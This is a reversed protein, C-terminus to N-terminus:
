NTIKFISYVKKLAEHAADVDQETNYLYFSIRNTSHAGLKEMLPQACHHGARIAIGDEDLISAVDHPHVGPINFSLIGAADEPGYLIIGPFQALKARAYATLERDHKAIFDFGVNELYTLAADFAVVDAINPTGAEFKWPLENFRASFQDVDLIMDGGFLFPPMAELIKRKGYLIGVGTPGLMKHASFALFDIDPKQVDIGLHALGQAGDVLIKAGVMHARATLITLPITSGLANSMQTVAVLKTKETIIKELDNLDLNGDPTVPIVKLNAKKRQCLQQWPVLNSHHELATVVVDDGSYINQEGWTYAVLNIAETTNRTFIIEESHNANIFTKVHERTKEYAESAQQSLGYVGRHVNANSSKYFNELAEIACLPKQTTAANDLYVLNKGKFKQLLIPFDKKLDKAIM